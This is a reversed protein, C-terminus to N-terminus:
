GCGPRAITFGTSTTSPTYWLTNHTHTDRTTGYSSGTAANMEAAIQNAIPIVLHESGHGQWTPDGRHAAHVLEHALVMIPALTWLSGDSNEGQIVVFPDWLIHNNGFMEDYRSSGGGTLNQRFLNLDTGNTVLTDILGRATASNNYLLNLAEKAAAQAAPCEDGTMDVAAAGSTGGGNGSDGPDYWSPDYPGPDYWEDDWYSPRRGTVSASDGSLLDMETSTFERFDIPPEDGWSPLTGHWLAVDEEVGVLLAQGSGHFFTPYGATLPVFGIELAPDVFILSPAALEM